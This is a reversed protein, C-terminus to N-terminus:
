HLLWRPPRRFSHLEEVAGVYGDYGVRLGRFHFHDNDRRSANGGTKGVVNELGEMPAEKRPQLSRPSHPSSLCTAHRAQKAPSPKQRGTLFGAPSPCILLRCTGARIRSVCIARSAVDILAETKKLNHIKLRAWINRGFDIYGLGNGHDEEGSVWRTCHLFAAKSGAQRRRLLVLADYPQQALLLM